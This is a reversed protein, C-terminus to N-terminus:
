YSKASESILIRSIKSLSEDESGVLGEVIELTSEDVTRGILDEVIRSKTVDPRNSGCLIQNRITIVRESREGRLLRIALAESAGHVVKEPLGEILWWNIERLVESLSNVLGRSNDEVLKLLLEKVEDRESCRGVILGAAADRKRGGRGRAILFLADFIERSEILGDRGSVVLIAAVVVKPSPDKLGIGLMKEDIDTMRGLQGIASKRVEADESGIADEILQSDDSRKGILRANWAAIRVVSSEDNCLDILIPDCETSLRSYATALVRQEPFESEALLKVIEGDGAGIWRRVADMAKERFWPDDDTLLPTFGVLSAPDNVEFLKRVARRRQGDDDHYLRSVAPHM